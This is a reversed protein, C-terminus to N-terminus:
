WTMGPLNLDEKTCQSDTMQHDYQTFTKPNINCSNIMSVKFIKDTINPGSPENDGNSDSPRHPLCSQLDACVNKKCEIYEIKCKYGCIDTTWHQIKKNQVPSHMINRLPKHDTRIVFESDDMYQDLKQLNYFVAFAEKIWNYALKDTFSYTLTVFYHIPKETTGNSKM